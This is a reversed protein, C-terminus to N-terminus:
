NRVGENDFDIATVTSNNGALVYSQQVQANHCNLEWIHIKRDSGGTAILSGSPHFQIAYLENDGCDQILFLVRSYDTFM